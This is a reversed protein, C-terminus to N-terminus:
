AEPAPPAGSKTAADDDVEEEDPEGLLERAEQYYAEMSQGMSAQNIRNALLDLCSANRQALGDLWKDKKGGKKGNVSVVGMKALFHNATARGIRGYIDRYRNRIAAPVTKAVVVDAGTKCQVEARPVWGSRALKGPNVDPDETYVLEEESYKTEESGTLIAM